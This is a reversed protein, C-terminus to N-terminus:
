DSYTCAYLQVVAVEGAICADCLSVSDARIADACARNRHPCVNRTHQMHQHCLRSHSIYRIDPTQDLVLAQKCEPLLVWDILGIGRPFVFNHSPIFAFANPQMSKCWMM